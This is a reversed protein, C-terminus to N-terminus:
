NVKKAALLVIYLADNKDDLISQQFDIPSMEIHKIAMAHDSLLKELGEKIALQVDPAM